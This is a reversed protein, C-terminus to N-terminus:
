SYLTTEGYDPYSCLWISGRGLLFCLLYGILDSRKTSGTRRIHSEAAAKAWDFACLDKSRSFVRAPDQSPSTFVLGGRASTSPLCACTQNRTVEMPLASICSAFPAPRGSSGIVM